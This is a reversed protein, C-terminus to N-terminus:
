PTMDLSHGRTPPPFFADVSLAPGSPPKVIAETFWGPMLDRVSHRFWRWNGDLLYTVAADDEARVGRGYAQVLDCATRWQYWRKALPDPEGDPGSQMRLKIQPDGLDPFALKCVVQFRLLDYPLDVGTTVSPSVLVAGPTARFRDLALTKEGSTDHSLLRDQHRSRAMIVRAIKYSVTHVLGRETPHNDLLTDVARVLGDLDADRSVKGVPQYHIPRSSKPFPCPARIFDVEGLPLGLQHAFLEGSLITASMFLVRGVHRTFIRSVLPTIWVPRAEAGYPTERISWGDDPLRPDLLDRAGEYISMFAAQERRLTKSRPIARAKKRRAYEDAYSELHRRAWRKWKSLDERARPYDLALLKFQSRRFSVSAFLRLQEELIHAEDCVLLDPGSFAGAHNVQHLWFQYNLVSVDADQGDTKQDYYPCGRKGGSPTIKLDCAGGVSCVAADAKTGPEKPCDFNGRGRVTPLGLMTAYQDQLGKTGTLIRTQGELLRAVGLAIVSKGTGTPAELIVYKKPSCVIRTILDWQGPQWATVPFMALELPTM